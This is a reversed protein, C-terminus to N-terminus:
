DSSICIDNFPLKITIKTGKGLESEVSIEGNHAEVIKKSIYLGLGTGIRKYQKAYSMYQVFIDKQKELEIGRGYDRVSICAFEENQAFVNVEIISNEPAYQSANAILNNVVRTIELADIPVTVKNESEQFKFKQNKPTLVYEATEMCLKAIDNLSYMKKVLEIKNNELKSKCLFNDVMNKLFKTSNLIDEIIEKQSEGLDGFTDSLLLKLANIGAYIPTKLDHAISAVFSEKINELQQKTRISKLIGFIRSKTINIDFPKEIFAYSGIDYSKVQTKRDSLGSIFIVPAFKNKDNQKIREAIDFGSIEPMMIDLLFLDFEEEEVAIIAEKPSQFCKINLEFEKLLGELLEINMINDDAILVRLGKVASYDAEEEPTRPIVYDYKQAFFQEVSKKKFPPQMLNTINLSNAQLITSRNLSPCVAWFDSNSFLKELDKIMNNEENSFETKVICLRIKEAEEFITEKKFNKLDEIYIFRKDINQIIERKFLNLGSNEPM